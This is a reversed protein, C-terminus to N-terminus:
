NQLRLNDIKNSAVFLRLSCVFFFHVGSRSKRDDGTAHSSSKERLELSRLAILRGLGQPLKTLSTDNLALHTLTRILTLSDPLRAIPNSSLDLILLHRCDQLEDPLDSIDALPSRRSHAPFFVAAAPSFFITQRYAGNKSVNLEVLNQLASVEAPLRHIDNDSLGLRQLKTLRFLSQLDNRRKTAVNQPPQRIKRRSEAARQYSEHRSAAGRANSLSGCREAGRESQM